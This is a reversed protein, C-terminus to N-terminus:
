DHEVRMLAIKRTKNGRMTVVIVPLGTDPFRTPRRVVGFGEWAGITVSCAGPRELFRDRHHEHCVMQHLYADSQDEKLVLRVVSDGTDQRRLWPSGQPM